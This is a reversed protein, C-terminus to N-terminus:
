SEPMGGGVPHTGEEAIRCYANCLIMQRVTTCRALGLDPHGVVVALSRARSVAVNLRNRHLLFDLGRPSAEGESAGMSVVVVPAEQGQFRDVSGVRASPFARELRRVQLNYPAVFLMSSWDVRGCEAGDAGTLPRGLLDAVVARVRAVEEDSAQANGEHGVPLWLLGAEVPVEGAEPPVRVVRRETGPEPALRGEYFAGSVFSCLRPHLRRTRDLFVGLAPPVTAREGLLYELVSAGSEGPHSGQTPQGLQMQDGILVLNRAARSMAVLNALSVQGAEDVFLHDFRGAVDDRAFLWATGGVVPV